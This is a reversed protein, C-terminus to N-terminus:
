WWFVDIRLVDLNDMEPMLLEEYDDTQYRKVENPNKGIKGCIV